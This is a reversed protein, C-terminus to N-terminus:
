LKEKLIGKPTTYVITQVGADRLALACAKCPRCMAMAGNRDLRAIYATSGTLDHTKSRVLAHIEAHIKHESPPRNSKINYKYQAPHPWDMNAARSVIYNGDVLVAGIKVRRYTSLKSVNLAHLIYRRDRPTIDM